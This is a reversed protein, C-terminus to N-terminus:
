FVSSSDKKHLYDDLMSIALGKLRFYTSRPIRKHNKSIEDLIENVDGPQRMTMYTAHIVWYLKEGLPKGDRLAEVLEEIFRLQKICDILANQGTSPNRQCTEFTQPQSLNPISELASKRWGALRYELLLKEARSHPHSENM